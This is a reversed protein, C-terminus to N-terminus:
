AVQQSPWCQRRERAPQQARCFAKPWNARQPIQQSWGCCESLMRCLLRGRGQRQWHRCAHTNGATGYGHLAEAGRVGSVQARRYLAKVYGPEAELAASAHTIVAAFDAARSAATAANNFAVARDKVKTAEGAAQLYLAQAEEYDGRKFAATGQAKLRDFEAM